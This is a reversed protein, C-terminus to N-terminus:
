RMLISPYLSNVDLVVGEGTEKEKYIDNLYTFGGKYSERIDQDIEFPLIPFYTKFNKNIEKYNKLADGGITMKNLNEKFMIDLAMAMITVDNKIYDIELENLIHGNKETSTM